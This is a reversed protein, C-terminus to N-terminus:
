TAMSTQEHIVVSGPEDGDPARYRSVRYVGLYFRNHGEQDRLVIAAHSADALAEDYSGLRSSRKQPAWRRVLPPWSGNASRAAEFRSCPL